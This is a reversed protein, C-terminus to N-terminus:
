AGVKKPNNMNHMNGNPLCTKTHYLNSNLWLHTAAMDQDRIFKGCYGCHGTVCFECVYQRTDKYLTM